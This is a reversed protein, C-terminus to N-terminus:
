RWEMLFWASLTGGPELRTAGLNFADPPGTQPEVCTAHATADYVVWHSCDSTLRIVGGGARELLVPQDNLFCDDWPGPPPPAVPLTAIGEGDRPYIARPAFVLRDPKRFWPHWGITAPMPREGATLSLTMALRDTGVELRQRVRGGFPWRADAPLDLSLEVDGLGVRVLQWPLAFAHGHIAHPGLNAPLRYAHGDFTFRGDRLRGAWPAMPYCGWAITAPDTDHGVLQEIGEYRIQAIRGGATPAVDVSLASRGITTVPGPALPALAGTGGAGPSPDPAM